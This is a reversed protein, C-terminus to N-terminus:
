HSAIAIEGYLAHILGDALGIKPVYIEPADAWRMVNVYIQLAPVIVDARDERLNYLHIREEVTFSNFEKYYDKLTDLSLPKGEKRKSLSFIKNINGGSGIAIVPGINKLQQKLFDKMQQWAAETVQQQLLRITGINFSEKFIQKDGSFLTLETSGGGVDIYLYSKTKDMNEAVHNEYIFSAEEQGSIIKIDIGTQAKVEQLLVTGNSADRMASTACAKLYKVEYVDLLLKYARITDILHTAKKDSISNNTFVDFGLRLPVRVLNLKTFDMVGASNPSAESILLRAANSGIDIAALKM